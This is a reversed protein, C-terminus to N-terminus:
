SIYKIYKEEFINAVTLEELIESYFLPQTHVYSCRGIVRLKFKIM